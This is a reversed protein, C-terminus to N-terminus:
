RPQRAPNEYWIVGLNTVEETTIADLDGDGDLDVLAVLDHKVGDVGSLEHATWRGTFASGDHSLWMLGPKGQAKIFSAVLDTRGDGDVDGASVAKVLASGAPFNIKREAWSKGSRDLRRLFHITNASDDEPLGHTGVCVDQLGDGDLDCLCFFLADQGMVGIPHEKWEGMQAEGPGPNELWFCGSRAGDFRESVVVDKDGDGDMDATEVGMVWGATRILRWRWRALDRPDAPSELWGIVGEGPKRGKSVAALDIGNRGDIQAPSCFMWMAKKETVPVAETKWATSELLRARDRPAWHVFM